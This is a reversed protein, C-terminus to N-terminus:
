TKEERGNKVVTGNSTFYWGTFSSNYCGHNEIINRVEDLSWVAIAVAGCNAWKRLNLEQSKSPKNGNDATKVEIRYSQGKYCANIDPRGFQYANGMVKEAICGKLGNLYEMIRGTIQSELAM